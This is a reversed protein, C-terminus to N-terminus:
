VQNENLGICFHKSASQQYSSLVKPDPEDNCTELSVGFSIHAKDFIEDYRSESLSLLLTNSGKTYEEYAFVRRLLPKNKCFFKSTM